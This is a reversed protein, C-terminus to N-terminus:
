ESASAALRMPQSRALMFFTFFFRRCVMASHPSSSSNRWSIAAYGKEVKCECPEKRYIYHLSLLLGGHCLGFDVGGLIARYEDMVDALLLNNLVVLVARVCRLPTLLFTETTPQFPGTVKPDDPKKLVDKRILPLIQSYPVM